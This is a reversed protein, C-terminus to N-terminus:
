IHGLILEKTNRAGGILGLFCLLKGKEAMLFHMLEAQVFASVVILVEAIGVPSAFPLFFFFTVEKGRETHLCKVM